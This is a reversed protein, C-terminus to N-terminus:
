LRELGGSRVDAIGLQTFRGYQEDLGAYPRTTEGNRVILVRVECGAERATRVLRERTDDWDLLVCVVTSINNLEDALAPALTDFPNTRCAEVCALIELINEFHALHRGARFVYLEPGAAFLDILYEGRALADAVSAALSVGSELEPFGAPSTDRRAVFTDLILAVRCYYEEQYERVAPKGLRAWSRYDVRRLNDGPRYERNGIYEPSEGIHSTLAVGGPQYRSGVPLDVTEIPHFSPLVLLRGGSTRAAQVRFLGFPFTTYARLPPLTYLGRRLAVLRVGLSAHKGRALSAVRGCDEELLRLGKPLNFYGLSLDFVPRRSRNEIDFVGSIPQDVGTKDPLDGKIIVRPCLLPGAVFAVGYLAFLATMLHYAPIDLTFMAVACVFASGGVLALGPVTLKYFAFWRAFRELDGMQGKKPSRKM